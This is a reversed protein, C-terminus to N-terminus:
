KAAEGRGHELWERVAEQSRVRKKGGAAIDNHLGGDLVRAKVNDSWQIEMIRRLENQLSIDLIPFVVEFRSDFNRPLFDASSLLCRPQGGNHFLFIRSHELHRDVISRAQINRSFKKDGTVVSFMSRVILRVNVGAHSAEYLLATIEPDALTNMRLFIGSERGGSPLQGPPDVLPKWGSREVSRVVSISAQETRETM